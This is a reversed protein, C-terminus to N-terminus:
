TNYTHVGIREGYSNLEKVAPYIFLVVINEEFSSIMELALTSDHHIMRKDGNDM